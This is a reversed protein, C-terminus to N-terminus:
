KLFGNREAQEAILECIERNLLYGWDFQLWYAFRLQQRTRQEAGVLDRLPQNTEAALLDRGSERQETERIRM